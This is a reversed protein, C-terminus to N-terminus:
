LAGPSGTSTSTSGGSSSTAPTTAPQLYYSAAMEVMAPCAGSTMLAIIPEAVDRGVGVPAAWTRPWTAIV